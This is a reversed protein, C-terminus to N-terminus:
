KEECFLGPHQSDKFTVQAVHIGDAKKAAFFFTGGLITTSRERTTNVKLGEKPMSKMFSNTIDLVQNCGAGIVKDDLRRKRTKSQFLVRQATAETFEPFDFGVYFSGKRDSIYQALDIEGGGKSFEIKIASDKVVGENKEVLYVTVESFSIDKSGGGVEKASEKGEEKKEEKGSSHAAEPGGEHGAEKFELLDWVKSPLRVDTAMDDFKIEHYEEVHYGPEKSCAGLLLFLCFYKRMKKTKM